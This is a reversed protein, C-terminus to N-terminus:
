KFSYTGIEDESLEYVMALLHYKENKNKIKIADSGWWKVFGNNQSVTEQFGTSFENQCDAKNSLKANIFYKNWDNNKGGTAGWVDALTIAYVHEPPQLQIQYDLIEQETIRNKGISRLLDTHIAKFKSLKRLGKAEIILLTKEDPIYVIGDIANTGGKITKGISLEYWAVSDKFYHRVASCFNVTQNHENFLNKNSNKSLNRPDIYKFPRQYEEYYDNLVDNIKTAFSM